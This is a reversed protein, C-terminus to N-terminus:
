VSREIPAGVRNGWETWSGDYNRVTKFGLLYKLVFWTHSSREGIRCYAVIEDDPRLGLDEVYIKRLEAASRFTADDNVAAKWPISEAGPIHGGRLVGEQPYEPMHTVLGKFEGPSRVDILPKRSRSQALADDYFARIEADRRVPPVPYASPKAQPVERTLPRGEAIWKERGGDMVKVKDHGFLQFVWLAYCAWWNSKDGYFICTTEPTIGHKSCLGAFGEPQIYDRITADQLDRQWDIHVAGPLHGTDYLLVDENSEILLLSPDKLHEAVWATTVLADSHAYQSEISM